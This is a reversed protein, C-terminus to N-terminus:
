QAGEDHTIFMSTVAGRAALDYTWLSSADSRTETLEFGHNSLADRVMDNKGTPIFTARVSTCGNDLARRTLEYLMETEVTRGIVRCSMLFTDIELCDNERGAIFLGVIGHDTFRDRIRMTFHIAGPEAMFAALRERTHRRTTLNFQNTKGVLQHIRDLDVENFSRVTARQDLSLLFEELSGASSALSSAEARARYQETRASDEATFSAAEFALYRSLARPYLAPDEPLTVVDVEPLLLRVAQREVPNDDVFTIASMGIGLNEAIRRLGDPKPDWSAEFAAFDGLSLRMEPHKDFPERADAPNNKSCVALIVGRRKLELVYEQFTVFAEGDGSGGVKIGALGDEGIVGGWLTNDLDLVLCKRGLGLHGALVAATHRALLPLAALGVALKSSNWYRPDFWVEKGVLGALRECDVLAVAGGAADCLALNLRQVMTSRAGPLRAALHGFPALDNVAFAHQMVLCSLRERLLSWLTTWREVEADVEAAADESYAPLALAGEHVALLVVDPRFDYLGSHVDLIEQRYQGFDCEYVETAVGLRACALRLLSSLQSTTASGLVALRVSRQVPWGAEACRNFVAAAGNWAVFDDGGDVAALAWRCANASDGHREYLRAVRGCTAASIVEGAGELLRSVEAAPESSEEGPKRM